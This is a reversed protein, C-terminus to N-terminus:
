QQQQLQRQQKHTRQAAYLNIFLIYPLQMQIQHGVYRTEMEDAAAVAAAEKAAGERGRKTAKKRERQKSQKTKIKTNIIVCKTGTIGASHVSFLFFDFM